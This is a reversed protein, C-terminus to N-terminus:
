GDFHNLHGRCFLFFLAGHLGFSATHDRFCSRLVMFCFMKIAGGSLLRFFPVRLFFPLYFLIYIFFYFFLFAIFIMAMSFM